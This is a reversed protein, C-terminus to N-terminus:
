KEAHKLGGIMRKKAEEKARFALPSKTLKGANYNYFAEIEDLYEYVTARRHLSAPYLRIRHILRKPDFESVRLVMSIAGVFSTSAAFEIGAELCLDTIGVVAIAHKSDGMRFEGTKIGRSKHKNGCVESLLRAAAGLQLHHRKQFAVLRAIDENGAVIRAQAFDGLSWKQKGAELEFIDADSDDVIYWVPIKLREAYHLRHHGQKVKLKGSGNEVCHIPLSPIFGYKKMSELLVSDEHTPRNFEHHEFMEYNRTSELRPKM